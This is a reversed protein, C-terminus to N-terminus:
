AAECTPPPGAGRPRTADSSDYRRLELGGSRCQVALTWTPGGPALQAMRRPPALVWIRDSDTIDDISPLNDTLVQRGDPTSTPPLEPSTGARRATLALPVRVVEPAVLGDGPAATAVLIDHAVDIGRPGGTAPSRLSTAALGVALAAVATGRIARRPLAEVGLGALITVAPVSVLLYRPVLLPEVLSITVGAALPAVAWASVLVRPSRSVGRAGWIGALVLVVVGPALALRGGGLLFRVGDELGIGHLAAIWSRSDNGAVLGHIAIPLLALLLLGVALGRVHRRQTQTPATRYAVALMALLAPAAYFHGYVALVALALWGAATRVAAPPRSSVIRLLLIAGGAVLTATLMSSRAEAAYAGIGVHLATAVLATVQALPGGGVRATLVVVLVLLALAALLSPLRLWLPDLSVQQWGRMVLHYPAMNLEETVMLAAFRDIPTAAFQISFAEDFWLERTAAGAGWWAAAAALVAALAFRVRPPVSSCVDRSARDTRQDTTPDTM